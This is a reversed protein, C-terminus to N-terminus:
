DESKNIFLELINVMGNGEIALFPEEQLEKYDNVILIKRQM